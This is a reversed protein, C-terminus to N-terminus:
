MSSEGFTADHRYGSVARDLATKHKCPRAILVEELLGSLHLLETEPVAVPSFPMLVSRSHFAAVPPMASPNPTMSGLLDVFQQKYHRSWAEAIQYAALTDSTNLTKRVERRGGYHSERLNEPIRIRFFLGNGRKQVYKLEVKM